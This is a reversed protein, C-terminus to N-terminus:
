RRYWGCMRRIRSPPPAVQAALSRVLPLREVWDRPDADALGRVAARVQDIDAPDDLQRRALDDLTAQQLGAANGRLYALLRVRQLPSLVALPVEVLEDRDADWAQWVEAQELLQVGVPTQVATM